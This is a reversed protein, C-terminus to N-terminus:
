NRHYTDKPNNLMSKILDEITSFYQIVKLGNEQYITFSM